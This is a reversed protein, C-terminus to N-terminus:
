KKLWGYVTNACDSVLAPSVSKDDMYVGVFAECLPSSSIDGKHKGNISVSLKKGSTRFGLVMNNKAGDEGLSNLLISQFKELAGSDKGKMRPKVADAIADVMKESGVTRAMKLVINKEFSSKVFANSFAKSKALDNSDKCSIGKCKSSVQGRPAYIGTAYVKAKIPGIVKVRVGVGVLDSFRDKTNFSLGTSQEKIVAANILATLALLISLINIM